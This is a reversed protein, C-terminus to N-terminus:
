TPEPLLVVRVGVDINRLGRDNTLFWDAEAVIATALHIADPLKLRTAARIAAARDAIDASVPVIALRPANEVAARVTGARDADHAYTQVLLEALGLTSFLLEPPDTGGLAQTATEHLPSSLDLLYTLINTDIGVREVSL